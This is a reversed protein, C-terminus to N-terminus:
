LDTDAIIERMIESAGGAITDLRTDRFLRAIPTRDLYGHGGFLQLCQGTVEVALETARLKAMACESMALKGRSHLWAAHYTLQRAAETHSMLEALRHRVVQNSALAKGFVRRESTYRRALELARDAEGIALVAAAVRELQFAKMIWMFGSNKRGLLRSDDVQVDEFNVTATDSCHWGLKEVPTRTVGPAQADIVFLSITGSGTAASTGDATRVATVIFDANMGNTVFAKTGCIAYGDGTPRAACSISSVDSGAQPETIALAAIMDGEIAPKLHALKQQHDGALHLYATAMYSHVSMAGRFGGSGLRGLEELYAVSHFFPLERGGYARPYHLGLLAERAFLKWVDRPIRRESEWTDLRPAIHESLFRRTRQRFADAEPPFYISDV